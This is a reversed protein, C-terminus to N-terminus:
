YNNRRARPHFSLITDRLFERDIHTYIETTTISAHGLMQQVARLDAGGELLHTAFSHRFTHPSITKKIGANDALQKVILFVMQRSLGKGRSTLFIIDTARRDVSIQVREDNIYRNILSLTHDGIPVLREKDGKGVVRIFGEQQFINSIKLDTLESVRLGCGYMTEIITKNRFSNKQSLDINDLMMEIEVASLVEPLKRGLRPSSILTTPDNDILQELILYNFFSKLGSLIRAQSYASFGLDYLQKIFLGIDDKKIKKLDFDINSNSLFQKFLSLDRSYADITNESLSKEMKLFAIYGKHISPSFHM